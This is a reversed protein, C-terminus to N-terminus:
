AEIDPPVWGGFAKEVYRAVALCLRDNKHNSIVQIGIPLGGSSLGMPCHTAPFGLVNIVSTYSFNFAKFVPENHYPAPTPHTPYLLVGDDGLLDILDRRFDDRKKVWYLHEESNYKPGMREFLATCLAILTHNSCRFIWKFFELWLNINGQLNSLQEQFKPGDNTMNGVWLESSKAFAKMEIKEPKLKLNKELHYVLKRLLLIIESNVPSVFTGGTDHEQYYFKIDKINVPEDLRLEDSNKNAIIKLIPALDEARRCMPGIGLFSNQEETNPVPYQGRNSVIFKSPKHGFIGNFFSPM